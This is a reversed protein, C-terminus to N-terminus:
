STPFIMARQRTIKM